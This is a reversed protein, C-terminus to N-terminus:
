NGQKAPAPKEVRFASSVAAAQDGAKALHDEAPEDLRNLILYFALLAHDAPQDERVLGRALGLAEANGVQAWFVQTQGGSKLRVTLDGNPAVATVTAEENLYSFTPGRASAALHEALRAKLKEKWTALTPADATRVPKPEPKPADLKAVAKGPADKKEPGAKPPAGPMRGLAVVAPPQDRKAFTCNEAQPGRHYEPKNGYFECNAVRESDMLATFLAGQLRPCKNNAFTCNLVHLHCYQSYIAGAFGLGKEKPEDVGNNEFICNWYVSTSQEKPICYGFIAGAHDGARNDQFLCNAIYFQKKDVNQSVGDTYIAGGIGGQGTPGRDAGGGYGFARCNKFTCDIVSIQCGITCIAGGNSGECDVFSCGTVYLHKQGTVRIAGGGIDPGTATTKCDEFQCDTVTLRGDWNVHWIAAGEKDVRAHQFRLRQVTLETKWEKQLIRTKGDGDLTVLGLGDLITPKTGQRLVLPKTLKITAPQGGSALVIAGGKHLAKQLADEADPAAANVVSDPKAIEVPKGPEVTIPPTLGAAAPPEAGSVALSTLALALLAMRSM